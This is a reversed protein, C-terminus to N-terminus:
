AEEPLDGSRSYMRQQGYIQIRKRSGSGDVREWGPVQQMLAGLALSDLHRLAGLERGLAEAWVEPLSVTERVTLDGGGFSVDMDETGYTALYHRRAQLNMSDWKSPLPTDLYEAVVGVRSDAEVAEKQATEALAAVEGTMHLPEKDRYLLVAEAWIQKIESETMDWAKMETKGSVTVPWFRRNGTSDRLFGFETANTSGVLICQRPRSVTTRAYAPRYLDEQASIFAKVSEAEVKRMGALEGMEMIWTGGLKEAAEKGKMDHLTLSDSFWDGGLKAFLTSKGTGQPGALILVQDHKVGPRMVRAVAAVLTKRAAARTYDNDEAGLYDVLLTDVRDIGDWEPLGKLYDRVPHFARGRAAIDLAELTRVSSYIGYKREIYLKLNALDVDEWGPQLRPWPVARSNRVGILGTMEDYRIEQLNKDNEIIRVLNSLSDVYTGDKNVALETIWDKDDIPEDAEEMGANGIDLLEDISLEEDPEDVEVIDFAEAATITEEALILKTGPDNQALATMRKTSPLKHTATDPKAGADESGYKHVRVLDFANLLQGGAPDTGHHSYLFKDDYVVAGAVSEGEKYSWRGGSAAAYVDPLFHEIAQDITWARCFAGILGPKELPDAQNKADSAHAKGQNSIGPWTSIDRWDDYRALQKDPDLWDGDNVQYLYDGDSPHSPWYMLRHAEHSTDDVADLGIDAAIRRSIAVYEDADVDRTLPVIVRVRPQEPRHSHTSYLVWEVPLNDALDDIVQQTPADLDLALLSRARVRGKRRLGDALHGGVFGGHDKKDAKKATPLSHYQAVTEGSVHPKKLRNTLTPWDILSNEWRKSMRSDAVSIKLERNLAPGDKRSIARNARNDPLIPIHSIEILQFGNM